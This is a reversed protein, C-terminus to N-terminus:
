REKDEAVEVKEAKILVLLNLEAHDVPDTSAQSAALTANGANM